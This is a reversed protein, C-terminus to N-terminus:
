ERGEGKGNENENMGQDELQGSCGEEGEREGVLKVALDSVGGKNKLRSHSCRWRGEPVGRLLLQVQAM